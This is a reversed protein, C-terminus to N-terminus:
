EGDEITIEYKDQIFSWLSSNVELELSKGTYFEFEADSIEGTDFGFSKASGNERNIIVWSIRNNMRRYVILYNKLFNKKTM